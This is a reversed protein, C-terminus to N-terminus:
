KIQLDYHLPQQKLIKITVGPNEKDHIPTGFYPKIHSSDDDPLCNAKVMLDLVIQVINTYDFKQKTKRRFTFEIYYPPGSVLNLAEKFQAQMQQYQCFNEKIYRMTPKSGIIYKGTWRKSNKSSPVNGRIFFEAAVNDM